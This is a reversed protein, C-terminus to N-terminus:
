PQMLVPINTTYVKENAMWAASYSYQEDRHLFSFWKYHNYYADVYDFMAVSLSTLSSAFILNEESSEVM